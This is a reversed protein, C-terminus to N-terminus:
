KTVHEASEQPSEGQGDTQPQSEGPLGEEAPEVRAEEQKKAKVTRKYQVPFGTYVGEALWKYSGEMFADSVKNIMRGRNNRVARFMLKLQDRMHSCYFDALQQLSEPDGQGKALMQEARSLVAAMGFLGTGIDVFQQMILQEVELKPGFRAMTHFMTRALRKSTKAIYNLHGRNRGNLHQVGTPTMPPFWQKPYWSVYFKFANWVLSAMNGKGMMIPMVRSVHTDMAERAIFLRMIETTGEIIRSIRADRLMREAPIPKEGRQGLSEATEYGRGGRVQVFDDIVRWATETAYYKAMAAELRIDTGGRDVMACVLTNMSDMAFTDALMNALKESVAQHNGIPAGWQVREHCWDFSWHTCLKGGAAATSPMTLRGTNLTTLAIKLGQGEKGVINEVPVKMNTFKLLGNSIGRIGMFSCIHAVEFGEWDSEVIFATIQPKEKGRVIKPKTLAMVILVEASPGNTCWLKEGNLIYHSGDESLEAKTIMRAPDSGVGPETLAFASVAGKAIRPLYQQKQEETGFMKLPQPIGISQHASLWVATSNCYSAIFAMVRNYNTQTLGLGGYKKDIKLGFCGIDALALIAERPIEGTRDVENPDIFEELVGRVKEIFEDGIRKDAPDQEPFPHVLEWAFKGRFLEAVFSPHKWEAERSDEALDMAKQKDHESVSM